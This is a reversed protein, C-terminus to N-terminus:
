SAAFGTGREAKIRAEAYAAVEQKMRAEDIFGGLWGALTGLIARAENARNATEMQYNPGGTRRRPTLPDEPFLREFEDRAKAPIIDIAEGRLRNYSTPLAEGSMAAQDVPVAALTSIIAGRLRLFRGVDITM